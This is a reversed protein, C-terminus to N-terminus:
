SFLYDNGGFVKDGLWRDVAYDGTSPHIRLAEVFQTEFDDLIEACRITRVYLDLEMGFWPAGRAGPERLSSLIREHWEGNPDFPRKPGEVAELVWAIVPDPYPVRRLREALVTDRDRLGVYVSDLDKDDADYGQIARM